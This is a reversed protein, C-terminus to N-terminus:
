CSGFMKCYLESYAKSNTGLREPTQVLYEPRVLEPFRERLGVRTGSRGLKEVVIKQGDSLLWDIFLIAAYPRQNNKAMMVYKPDSMVPDLLTIDIPAGRQKMVLPRFAFIWPAVHTEGAALLNTQLNHGKRVTPKNQALRKFYSMGKEKGWHNMLTAFIDDDEQDVSLKGRWKPDTLDEYTKPVEDSRVLKTNYIMAVVQQFWATWYGDADMFDKRIGARKPSVYPELLNNEKLRIATLSTAEIVDVDFRGARAETVVKNYVGLAGGRFHGVEIFPYEKKFGDFLIKMDDVGTTGYLVVKGEQKAGQILRAERAEDNLGRMENLVEAMDRGFARDSALVCILIGYCALVLPKGWNLVKFLPM